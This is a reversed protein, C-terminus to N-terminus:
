HIFGLSGGANIFYGSDPDTEGSIYGSIIIGTGPLMWHLEGGAAAPYDINIGGSTFITRVAGSLGLWLPGFDLIVGGRGYAYFYIGAPYVNDTYSVRYPSVLLDPAATVTLPGLTLAAPLSVSLGTFNTLSDTYTGFIYSGKAAVSLSFPSDGSPIIGKKLGIGAMYASDAPSQIIVGGTIDTELGESPVARLSVVSPFRYSDNEMHGISGIDLQFSGLPLTDPTPTFMTGSIGSFSNRDKIILSHDVRIVATKRDSVMGKSDTGTLTVRYVGNPVPIGRADRGRWTFGQDWSTFSPFRHTLVKRGDESTISLAGSGYTSVTFNINSTGLGAPNDPNFVQRSVNLPSFSFRSPQMHISLNTTSMEYITVDLSFHDYGFLDATVTYNGVPLENVGESLEINSAKVDTEPPDVTLYLYGTIEKLEFDLRASEGENYEIWRSESYYGEKKVTIRYRGSSLELTIPTTGQYSPDVYVDADSPDSAITLGATNDEPESYDSGGDDTEPKSSSEVTIDKFLTGKSTACGAFAILIVLLSLKFM